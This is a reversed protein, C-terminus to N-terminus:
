MKTIMKIVYINESIELLFHLYFKYGKDLGLEHIKCFQQRKPPSVPCPTKRYKCYLHLFNAKNQYIMYYSNLFYKRKKIKSRCSKDKIQKQINFFTFIYLSFMPLPIKMNM